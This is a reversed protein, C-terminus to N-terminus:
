QGLVRVAEAISKNQADQAGGEAKVRSHSNKNKTLTRELENGEETQRDSDEIKQNTANTANARDLSRSASTQASKSAMNAAQMGVSGAGAAMNSVQGMQALPSAMMQGVKTIM